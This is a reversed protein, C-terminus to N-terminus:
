QAVEKETDKFLNDFDEEFCIDEKKIEKLTILFSVLQEAEDKTINNKILYQEFSLEREEETKGTTETKGSIKKEKGTETKKVM